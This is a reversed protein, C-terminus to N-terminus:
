VLIRVGGFTIAFGNNDILYNTGKPISNLKVLRLQGIDNMIFCGGYMAAIYGLTERCSYEGGPYQVEYKKTMIDSTRPDIEVGMFAAIEKVVDIDYAPFDLKSSPYDQESRLMADFGTLTLLKVGSNEGSDKRTDIFFVGKSIWESERVGYTLRIQPVLKGQRPPQTKPYNMVIKIESGVCDGVSPTEGNFLRMSTSLQRLEVEPYAVTMQEIPTDKGGILLRTEKKHTNRYLEKYLESTEQM